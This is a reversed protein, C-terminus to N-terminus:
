KYSLISNDDSKIYQITRYVVYPMIFLQGRLGTQRAYNWFNFQCPLKELEFIKKNNTLLNIVLTNFLINYVAFESTLLTREYNFKVVTALTKETSNEVPRFKIESYNILKNGLYLLAMITNNINVNIKNFPKNNM